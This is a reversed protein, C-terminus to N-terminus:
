EPPTLPNAQAIEEGSGGSARGLRRLDAFIAKLGTPAAKSQRTVVILTTM